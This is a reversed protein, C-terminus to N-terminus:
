PIRLNMVTNLPARWQAREKALYIWDVDECGTVKLDNVNSYEM